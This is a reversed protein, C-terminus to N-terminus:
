HAEEIYLQRPDRPDNDKALRQILPRRPIKVNLVHPFWEGAMLKVPGRGKMDEIFDTLDHVEDTVELVLYRPM